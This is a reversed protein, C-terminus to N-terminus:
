QCVTSGRGQQDRRVVHRLARLHARRPARGGALLRGPRPLQHARQPPGARVQRLDRKGDHARHGARRWLQPARLRLALRGRHPLPGRHLGAAWARDPRSPLEGFLRLLQGDRHSKNRLENRGDMTAQPTKGVASGAYGAILEAPGAAVAAPVAAGPGAAAPGVAAPVAVAPTAAAPTASASTASAPAPNLYVLAVYHVGAEHQPHLGLRLTDRVWRAVQVVMPTARSASGPKPGRGLVAALHAHIEALDQHRICETKIGTLKTRALKFAGLSHTRYAAAMLAALDQAATEYSELEILVAFLLDNRILDLRSKFFILDNRILLSRKSRVTQLLFTTESSSFALSFAKTTAM